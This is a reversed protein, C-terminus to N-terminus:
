HFVIKGSLVYVLFVKDLCHFGGVINPLLIVYTLPKCSFLQPKLLMICNMKVHPLPVEPQVTATTHLANLLFWLHAILCLIQANVPVGGALLLAFGFHSRWSFWM